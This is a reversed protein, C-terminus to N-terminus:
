PATDPKCVIQRRKKWTLSIILRKSKMVYPQKFLQPISQGPHKAMAEAITVARTVRRVDAMEIGGFHRKAWTQPSELSDM